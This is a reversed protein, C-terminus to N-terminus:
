KNEKNIKDIYKLQYEFPTFIIGGGEYFKGFYELYQLRGDHVYASLLGMVFNFVHGVLYILVAFIFGIVSGSVMDALMNMTFAIVATSLSLALIRSYSLIDSLYSTVGYLGGLGSMMKKFVGKEKHGKFILIFLVGLGISIMGIWQPKILIFLVIGILILIWSLGESLASYISKKRIEIIVKIILGTLIHLVGIALSVILMPLPDNVPELIISTMQTNGFWTGIVKLLDVTTGFFSGFMIGFIVSSVGSYAFVLALKKLEGKPKKYKIFMLFFIIMALGYGIDGMMIGFILWYWISMIPNPDIENANPVSYMNTITEFQKVFWNNRTITPKLDNESEDLIEIYCEFAQHMEESFSDLMDEAIWGEIYVTQETKSTKIHERLKKNVLYDYYYKLQDINRSLIKVVKNTEILSNKMDQNQRNLEAIRDSISISMIPLDEKVFSLKILLDMIKKYDKVMCIMVIYKFDDIQNFIETRQDYMSLQNLIETENEIHYYGYVAKTISLEHLDKTTVELDNYPNLLEYEKRNTNIGDTIRDLKDMLLDMQNIVNIGIEDAKNFTSLDIEHYEFFKKKQNKELLNIYKEIKQLEQETGALHTVEQQDAFMLKGSEHVKQIMVLEKEKSSILRIKKSQVIM